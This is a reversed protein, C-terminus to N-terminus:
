PTITEKNESHGYWPVNVKCIFVKASFQWTTQHIEGVVIEEIEQKQIIKIIAKYAHLNCTIHKLHPLNPSKDL